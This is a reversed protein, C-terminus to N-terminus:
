PRVEHLAIADPLDPDFRALQAPLIGNWVVLAPVQTLDTSTLGPNLALLETVTLGNAAAVSSLTDGAQVSYRRPQYTALRALVVQVPPGLTSGLDALQEPTSDGPIGAFSDVELYDVGPVAQMTAVVQSLYVPQGLEQRRAGFRDLLAERVAAAVLPWEYDPGVHIGAGLVLLVLARVAVQVPQHPDGNEAYAARLATVLASTDDLPADDTGAVTVHVVQRHGDTLKTASATGIGARARAFDEYDRV